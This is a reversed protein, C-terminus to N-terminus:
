RQQRESAKRLAEDRQRQIAHLAAILNNLRIIVESVLVISNNTTTTNM